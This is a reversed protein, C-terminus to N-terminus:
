DKVWGGTMAAGPHLCIQQAKIRTIIEGNISLGTENKAPPRKNVTARVDKQCQELLKAKATVLLSKYVEKRPGAM